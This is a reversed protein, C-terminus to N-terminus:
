RDGRLPPPPLRIARRPSPSAASRARCGRNSGCVLMAWDGAKWHEFPKPTYDADVRMFQNPLFLRDTIDAGERDFAKLGVGSFPPLLMAFDSSQEHESGDLTEYLM